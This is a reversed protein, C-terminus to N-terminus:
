AGQQECGGAYKAGEEGPGPPRKALRLVVTYFDGVKKVAASVRGEDALLALIRTTFDPWFESLAGEKRKLQTVSEAIAEALDV